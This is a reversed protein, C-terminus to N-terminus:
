APLKIKGILYAVGKIVLAAIVMQVVPDIDAVPIGVRAAIANLGAVAGVAGVAALWKFIAKM